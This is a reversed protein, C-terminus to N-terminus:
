WARGEDQVPGLSTLTNDSWPPTLAIPNANNSYCATPGITYKDFSLKNPIISHGFLLMAGQFDRWQLYCVYNRISEDCGKGM